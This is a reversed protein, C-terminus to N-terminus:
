EQEFSLKLKLLLARLTHMEDPNLAREFYRKQLQILAPFVRRFLRDGEPTLRVITSRRDRPAALRELLGKAELRDLVGTLTGKTVLSRDSLNTATMGDTNGLTAIVDFQAQTLGFSDIQRADLRSFALYTEVLPRLVQLYPEDRAEFTADKM